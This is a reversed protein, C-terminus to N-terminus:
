AQDRRLVTLIVKAGIVSVYENAQLVVHHETNFPVGDDVAATPNVTATGRQYWAEGGALPYLRVVTAQTTSIVTSDEASSAADLVQCRLSDEYSIQMPENNEDLPMIAKDSM